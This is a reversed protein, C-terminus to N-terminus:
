TAQRRATHSTSLRAISSTLCFDSRYRTGCRVPQRRVNTVPIGLQQAVALDINNTGTAAVCILRTQGALAHLIPADLVVKNSIIIEADAIHALRQEPRTQGWVRLEQCSNQLYHLDLDHHDTSDLDLFVTKFTARTTESM